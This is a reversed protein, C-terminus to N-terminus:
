IGFQACFGQVCRTPGSGFIDQLLSPSQCHQSHAAAVRPRLLFARKSSRQKGHIHALRTSPIRGRHRTNRAGGPCFLLAASIGPNHLYARERDGRGVEIKVLELPLSTEAFPRATGVGLVEKQIPVDRVGNESTAFSQSLSSWGTTCSGLKSAVM